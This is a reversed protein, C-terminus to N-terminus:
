PTKLDPVGLAPETSGVSESAAGDVSELPFLFVSGHCVDSAGATALTRGDPAFALGNVSLLDTPMALSTLRKGTPVHWLDARAGGDLGVALRSGDPSFALSLAAHGDSTLTRVRAGTQPQFLHIKGDDSAVALLRGDPSFSAAPRRGLDVPLKSVLRLSPFEYIEVQDRNTALLRQDPSLTTAWFDGPRNSEWTQVPRTGNSDLWFNLQTRRGYQDSTVAVVSTGQPSLFINRAFGYYGGLRRMEQLSDAALIRISSRGIEEKKGMETADAAIHRGDASFCAAFSQLPKDSNREEVLLRPRKGSVDWVAWRRSAAVPALAGHSVLLRRGDPSYCVSRPVADLLHNLGEL